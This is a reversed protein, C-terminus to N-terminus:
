TEALVLAHLPTPGRQSSMGRGALLWVHVELTWSKGTTQYPVERGSPIGSRGALAQLIGTDVLRRIHHLVSAPDRGLRHRDGQQQAGGRPM